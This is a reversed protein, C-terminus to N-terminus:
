ENWVGVGSNNNKNDSDELNGNLNLAVSEGCGCRAEEQPTKFTFGASILGREFGMKVNNLDLSNLTFDDTYIDIDKTTEIKVLNKNDNPFSLDYRYGTCGSKKLVLTTYSDPNESDLEILRNVATSSIEM